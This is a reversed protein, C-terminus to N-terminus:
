KMDISVLKGQDFTLVRTVAGSTYTWHEIPTTGAYQVGERVIVPDVVKSAPEGCNQLVDDQSMGVSVIISGCRFDDDQGAAAMPLALVGIATATVLVSRFM